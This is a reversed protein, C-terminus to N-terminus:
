NFKPKQMDPPTPFIKIKGDEPDHYLLVDLGSHGSIQLRAVEEPDLENLNTAPIHSVIRKAKAASCTLMDAVLIDSMTKDKLKKLAPLFRKTEKCLIQCAIVMESKARSGSAPKKRVDKLM